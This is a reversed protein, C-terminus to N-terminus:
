QASAAQGGPWTTSLRRQAEDAVEADAMVEYRRARMGSVSTFDRKGETLAYAVSSIVGGFLAGVLAWYAVVSLAAIGPFFLGFLLGFLAGMLAGSGAGTLAARGLDLRGTVQEVLELDRGVIALREIPFGTEALRDVMAQADEYRDFTAIGRRPSADGTYSIEM